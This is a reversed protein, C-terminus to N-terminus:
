TSGAERRARQDRVGPNEVDQIRVGPSDTERLRERVLSIHNRLEYLFHAFTVPVRMQNARGELRDLQAVLEGRGGSRAEFEMEIFKLEGYLRFIRRRVNWAYLAPIVRLLPYAIGVVPVLLVLLRSVLVALWFPLYRQLLPPGSKYFQHADKSLPLDIHEPAPFQDPKQFVDPKSHIESAAELLLYQIAPHLDSRVILSAKPAVLTVDTPPRNAAMNGVGAPLVLKTLFPFIAVAADARPFGALGIEPSALLRRVMPTDWSTVIAAAEIEGHMLADGAQATDLPLLQAFDAAIGNLALFREAMLRTGGGKQGLSIRKGRLSEVRSRATAGQEVVDGERYFFWFPEFFLTGLSELAPSQRSDTLGGQVFAVTVGSHSDNLRKLNEVDGASSMLTLHIGSDSLHSQYERGYLEYDSGPPGTSM